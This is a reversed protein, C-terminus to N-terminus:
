ANFQKKEKKPKDPHSLYNELSYFNRTKKAIRIKDAGSERYVSKEQVYSYFDM